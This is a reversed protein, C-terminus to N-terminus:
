LGGPPLKAWNTNVEKLPPKLEFDERSGSCKALLIMLSLPFLKATIPLLKPPEMYTSPILELPDIAQSLGSGANMGLSETPKFFVYGSKPSYVQVTFFTRGTKEVNAIQSNSVGLLRLKQKARSILISDSDNKLLFLLEEQYTNLEPSYLDM